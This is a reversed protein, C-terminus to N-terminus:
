ALHRCPKAPHQVYPITSSRPNDSGMSPSGPADFPPENTSSRTTNDPNSLLLLIIAEEKGSDAVALGKEDGEGAGDGDGPCRAVAESAKFAMRSDRIHLVAAGIATLLCVSLWALSIAAAVRIKTGFAECGILRWLFVSTRLALGVASATVIVM